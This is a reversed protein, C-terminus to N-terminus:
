MRWASACQRNGGCKRSMFDAGFTREAEFQNHAHCRLRINGVTARGDRAFAHVHDFELGSREECRHGFDSVFTCRGGDREWVARKVDAPIHRSDISRARGPRPQDTAAFKQKRLQAVYLRLAAKLVDPVHSTATPHGLLEHAERLLAQTEEDITTQLAFREPALPTIQPRPTEVPAPTPVDFVPAAPAETAPSPPEVKGPSLQGARAPPPSPPIAVLITALDPKPFRRALILEIASKSQGEAAKLLEGANDETLHAALLVVASLHLRGDEVAAFVAPFRRAARAAFIHKYASQESLRLEGICWRYLSPYGDEVHIRRADIEAICAILEATDARRRAAVAKAHQVLSRDSLHTFSYSHM